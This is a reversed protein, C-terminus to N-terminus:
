MEEETARTLSISILILVSLISISYISHSIFAAPCAWIKKNFAKRETEREVEACVIHHLDNIHIVIYFVVAEKEIKISGGAMINSM